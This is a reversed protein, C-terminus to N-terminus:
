QDDYNLEERRSIIRNFRKNMGTRLRSSISKCMEEQEEDEYDREQDAKEKRSLSRSIGM